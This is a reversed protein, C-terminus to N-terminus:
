DLPYGHSKRSDRVLQVAKADQGAACATQAGAIDKQVSNYVVPGAYGMERDNEILARWKGIAATCAAGFPLSVTPAAQPQSPDATAQASATPASAVPTSQSNCGALIAGLAAICATTAARPSLRGSRARIM